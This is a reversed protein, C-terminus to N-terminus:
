QKLAGGLGKMFQNVMDGVASFGAGVACGGGEACTKAGALCTDLRTMVEPNANRKLDDMDKECKAQEDNSSGCLEALRQCARKQPTGRLWFHYVGYGIAAVALLAIVKKM